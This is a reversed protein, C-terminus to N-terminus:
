DGEYGWGSHTKDHCRLTCTPGGAAGADFAASLSSGTLINFSYGRDVARAFSIQGAEAADYSGHPDHCVACAARKDVVHKKHLDQFANSSYVITTENHCNWCAQFRAAAYTTGDDTDYRAALMATQDTGHGSSHCGGSSGGGFCTLSKGEHASQTWASASVPTPTLGDSFPASGDAGDADHCALCFVELKAAETASSLPDDALEVVATADTPRDVDLLRVRGQMHQTMEHCVICDAALLGDGPLHHSAGAFDATVAPRGGVPVGDGNDQPSAHCAMCDLGGGGGGGNCDGSDLFVVLAAVQESTLDPYSGATHTTGDAVVYANLHDADTCHLDPGFGGSADTGHCSGCDNDQWVVAGDLGPPPDAPPLLDDDAPPLPSSGSGCASLVGLSGALLLALIALLTIRPM